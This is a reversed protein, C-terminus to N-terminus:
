RAPADDIAGVTFSGWRRNYYLLPPRDPFTSGTLMEGVFILHDGGDYTNWVRCDLWGSVDPLIPSGTQATTCAIGAFRDTVDPILGAFLLGWHAQDRNLINIAFVGSGEVAERFALTRGVCVLVLSPELSVSAFSTATIGHWSGDPAATTAVTVGTSWQALVSKFQEPDAQM